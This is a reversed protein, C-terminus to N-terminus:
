IIDSLPQSKKAWFKWTPNHLPKILNGACDDIILSVKKDQWAKIIPSLFNDLETLKHQYEEIDEYIASDILQDLIFLHTGQKLDLIDSASKSLPRYDCHIATAFMESRGDREGQISAINTQKFDEPKGGGYFWLSNITALGKMEREQNLPLTHLIMQVENQISKWNLSESLPIFHAINKRLVNELPTTKIPSETNSLLYWQHNLDSVFEFGDQNFHKNLATICQLVEEDTLDSIAQTLTIDNLGVELHVPDACLITKNEELYHSYGGGQKKITKRILSKFRYYAIPLEM